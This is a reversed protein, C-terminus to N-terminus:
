CYTPQLSSAIMVCPESDIMSVNSDISESYLASFMAMKYKQSVLLVKSLKKGHYLGSLGHRSSAKDCICESVTLYYNRKSM